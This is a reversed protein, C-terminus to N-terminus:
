QPVDDQLIGAATGLAPRSFNSAGLSKANQAREHREQAQCVPRDCWGPFERVVPHNTTNARNACFDQMPFPAPADKCFTYPKTPDLYSHGCSYMVIHRYCMIFHLLVRLIPFNPQPLLPNAYQIPSTYCYYSVQSITSSTTHTSQPKSLQSVTYKLTANYQLTNVSWTSFCHTSCQLEWEHISTIHICLMATSKCGPNTVVNVLHRFGGYKRLRPMEPLAPSTTHKV